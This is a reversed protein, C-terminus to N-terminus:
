RHVDMVESAVKSRARIKEGKFVLVWPVITLLAAVVNLDIRFDQVLLGAGLANEGFWKSLALAGLCVSVNFIVGIVTALIAATAVM